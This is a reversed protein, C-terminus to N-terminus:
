VHIILIHMSFYPGVIYLYYQIIQSPVTPRRSFGTSYKPKGGVLLKASIRSKPWTLSGFVPPIARAYKLYTNNIQCHVSVSVWTLLSPVLNPKIRSGRKRWGGDVWSPTETFVMILFLEANKPISTSFYTMKSVMDRVDFGPLQKLFFPPPPLYITSFTWDSGTCGVTKTRRKRKVMNVAMEVTKLVLTGLVWLGVYVDGEVRVYHLAMEELQGVAFNV